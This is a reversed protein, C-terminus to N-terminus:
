CYRLVLFYVFVSSSFFFTYTVVEDKGQEHEDSGRPQQGALEQPGGTKQLDPIVPACLWAQSKPFGPNM